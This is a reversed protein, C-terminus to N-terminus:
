GASVGTTKRPCCLREELRLASPSGRDCPPSRVWTVTVRCQEAGPRNASVALVDSNTDRPFWKNNRDWRSFFHIQILQVQIGSNSSCGLFTHKRTNMYLLHVFCM